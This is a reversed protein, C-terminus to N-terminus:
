PMAEAIGTVVIEGTMWPHPGCYYTYTGPENFTMEYIEDQRLLPADDLSLDSWAVQHPLPSTNTWRVTTGPEIRIGGPSFASDLIAIEVVPGSVEPAMADNMADDASAFVHLTPMATPPFPDAAINWKYAGVVDFRLTAEYVAPDDTGPEARVRLIEGTERHKLTVVPEMGTVEGDPIAHHLVRFRITVPEGVVAVPVPEALEVIAWGGADVSYARLVVPAVILAAVFTRRNM